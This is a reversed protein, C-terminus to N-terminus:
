TRIKVVRVNTVGPMLAAADALGGEPENQWGMVHEEAEPDDDSRVYRVEYQQGRYGVHDKLRECRYSYDQDTM